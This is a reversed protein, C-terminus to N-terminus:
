ATAAGTGPAATAAGASRAAAAASVASLLGHAGGAAAACARTGSGTEGVLVCPINRELARCLREVVAAVQADHPLPVRERASADPMAQLASDATPEAATALRLAPSVVAAGPAQAAVAEALSSWVPWDFRAHVHYHRGQPTHVALPTALPSRFRDVLAGVSTHFLSELSQMRLTAGSMGLQELASRNAGVIRGDPRVAIIGEMLTGIFDVRGHFHLRMVNRLDDTLWRNEIMRASMKVLAMTHQHYSRHDGSVDLVGLINGRPDLIPAASCTLFHNAHFYHEDAHVLTPLETVLATGVANTGKCTESWVAGPFAAVKTARSLFDDDGMVHVITGTADTLVVMSHTNVIQDHLLEMVPAAHQLLRLNRSRAIELDARGLLGLDPAEIRSLGLAACRDHSRNIADVHNADLNLAGAIPRLYGEDRRASRSRSRVILGTTPSAM